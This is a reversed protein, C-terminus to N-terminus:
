GDALLYNVETQWTSPDSGDSPDTLYSASEV